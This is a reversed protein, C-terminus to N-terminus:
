SFEVGHITINIANATSATAEITDNATLTINGEFEAFEGKQLTMTPLITNVDAHGAHWIKVTASGSAKISVVSIHKILTTVGTATYVTDNAGGTLTVQALKKVTTTTM